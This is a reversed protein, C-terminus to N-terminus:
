EKRTEPEPTIRCCELGCRRKLIVNAGRTGGRQIQQQAAAGVGCGAYRNEPVAKCVPTVGDASQAM